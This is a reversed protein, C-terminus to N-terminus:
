NPWVIAAGEPLEKKVCFGYEKSAPFIYVVTELGTAKMFRLALRKSQKFKDKNCDCM